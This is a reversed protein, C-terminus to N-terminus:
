LAAVEVALRSIEEELEAALRICADLDDSKAAVELRGVVHRTARAGISAAVSKLTHSHLAVEELAGSEIGEKISDFRHEVEEMARPALIMVEDRTLELLDCIEDLELVPYTRESTTHTDSM